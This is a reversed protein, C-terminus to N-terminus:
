SRQSAVAREMEAIIKAASRAPDPAGYIPRGVILYDAGSCIADTPTGSRRHDDISAGIPRIGPTAVIFVKGKRLAMDKIARLNDSASAIVGDCGFDLAREARHSIVQETTADFGMDRLNENDLSTLVTVTFIKLNYDGRGLAAAKVVSENHHVTVFSVGRQAATRVANEITNPIDYMKADLFVKKDQRIIKGVLGDFGDATWLGFGVKFVSAVGDLRDVLESAQQISQVDLAVILRDSVVKPTVSAGISGAGDPM